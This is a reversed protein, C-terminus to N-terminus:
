CSYTRKHYNRRDGNQERSNQPLEYTQPSRLGIYHSKVCGDLVAGPGVLSSCLPYGNGKGSTFRGSRPAPCEGWRGRRVSKQLFFTYREWLSCKLFSLIKYLLPQPELLLVPEISNARPRSFVASCWLSSIRYGPRLEFRTIELYLSLPNCTSWALRNWLNRYFIKWLDGQFETMRVGSQIKGSYYPVPLLVACLGRGSSSMFAVGKKGSFSDVNCPVRSIKNGDESTRKGLWIIGSCM